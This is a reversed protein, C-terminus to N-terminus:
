ALKEFCAFYRCVISDVGREMKKIQPTSMEFLLESLTKADLAITGESPNRFKPTM